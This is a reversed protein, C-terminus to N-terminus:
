ARRPRARSRPPRQARRRGPYEGLTSRRHRGLAVDNLVLAAALPLALEGVQSGLDSITEGALIKLFDAHQLLRRASGAPQAATEPRPLRGYGYADMAAVVRSEIDGSVKERLAHFEIMADEFATSSAPYSRRFRTVV